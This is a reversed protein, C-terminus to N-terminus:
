FFFKFFNSIRIIQLMTANEFLTYSVRRSSNVKRSIMKRYLFFNISTIKRRLSFVSPFPNKRSTYGRSSVSPSRFSSLPIAIITRAPNSARMLGPIRLPSDFPISCSPLCPSAVAFSFPFPFTLPPVPVPHLLLVSNSLFSRSTSPATQQIRSILVVYGIEKERTVNRVIAHM